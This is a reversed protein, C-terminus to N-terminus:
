ATEGADPPFVRQAVSRIATQSSHHKGPSQEKFVLRAKSVPLQWVENLEYSDTLTVLLLSDFEFNNAIVTPTSAHRYKIQYRHGDNDVADFGMNNGRVVRLGLQRAVLLEAFFGPELDKGFERRIEALLASSRALLDNHREEVAFSSANALTTARERRAVVAVSAEASARNFRVIQSVLDISTTRFGVSMWGEAQVHSGNAWWATYDRASRPLPGVLSEIESFRMALSSEERSRLYDALPTYKPM